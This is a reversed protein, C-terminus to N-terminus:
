AGKELQGLRECLKEYEIRREALTAELGRVIPEPARSRFTEDALRGQKSAIDKELQEKGKRLKAAEAAVDVGEAFAVRVDFRATSRLTGGAAPLAEASIRLASLIALRLITERNREVLGRVAADGSSFEAAIRKKPDLKMQARVNRLATIIEQILAVAEDAPADLWEKKTAPFAELAISKAGARQPLQHWLEETLFPMFPHLLRLATEFASFLNKWAITARERDAGSLDPKVWEIYWDCFDGWFFQYVGQAAEHFRYNALADDIMATTRALRSFIWADALPM